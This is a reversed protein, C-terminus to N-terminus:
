LSDKIKNIVDNELLLKAHLCANKIAEANSSGHSIISVGNVGGLLAGGFSNPHFHAKIRDFVGLLKLILGAVLALPGSKKIQAQVAAAMAKLGGELAKLHINGTFGDCVAVDCTSDIITKGEVNGIFNIRQYNKLLEYAEKYRDTGKGEEEGVNLLGVRPNDIKLIIKALISGILGSQLMQGPTTEINSGGDILFMKGEITPILTCICPREFGEIRGLTFLSSATAAGTHGAAVVADANGDAVLQNAVVVSADKARKVARAPNKEDMPIDGPADYIELDLEVGKPAEQKVLEEVIAKKGVLIVHIGPIQAAQIGGRVIELPAYDGGMADVAIRFKKSNDVMDTM